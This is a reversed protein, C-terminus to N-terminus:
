RLKIRIVNVSYPSVSLEVKIGKLTIKQDVPKIIEPKEITNLGDLSESKLVIFAADPLV